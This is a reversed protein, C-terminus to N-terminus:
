EVVEIFVDAATPPVGGVSVEAVVEPSYALDTDQARVRVRWTEGKAIVGAPIVSEGSDSHPAAIWGSVSDYDPLDNVVGGVEVEWDFEYRIDDGDLDTSGSAVARLSQGTRVAPSQAIAGILCALLSCTVILLVWKLKKNM